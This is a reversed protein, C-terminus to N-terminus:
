SHVYIPNVYCLTVDTFFMKFNEEAMFFTGDNPNKDYGFQTRLQSTWKNSAFSWDGKWDVKGEPNRLKILNVSKGDSQVDKVVGVINYARGSSLGLVSQKEMPMQSM